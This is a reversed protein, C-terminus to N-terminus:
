PHQAPGRRWGFRLARTTVAGRSEWLSTPHGV